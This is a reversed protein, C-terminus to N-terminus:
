CWGGGLNSFAAWAARTKPGAVGDVGGTDYGLWVLFGQLARITNPGVQGDVTGANFNRDNLFRQWASWSASGLQGDIAGPDYGASRVYCQVSKAETTSLGLNNVAQITVTRTVVQQAPAATAASAGALTGVGLAAATLIGLLAKATKNSAM